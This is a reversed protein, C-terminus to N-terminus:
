HFWLSKIERKTERSTYLLCPDPQASDSKYIPVLAFHGPINGSRQVWKKKGYKDFCYSDRICMKHGTIPHVAIPNYTMTMESNFEKVDGLMTAFTHRSTHYTIAKTIGAKEAWAKLHENIHTDNPLSSQVAIWAQFTCVSNLHQAEM